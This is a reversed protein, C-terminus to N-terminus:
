SRNAASTRPPGGTTGRPSARRTIATTSAAKVEARSFRATSVWMAKGHIRGNWESEICAGQAAPLNGQRVLDCGRRLGPEAPNLRPGGLQVSPHLVTTCQGIQPPLDGRRSKPGDVQDAKRAPGRAVGVLPRPPEALGPPKEGHSRLQFARCDRGRRGADVPLAEGQGVDGRAKGLQARHRPRKAHLRQEFSRTYGPSPHAGSAPIRPFRRREPNM